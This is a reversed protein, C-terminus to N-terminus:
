CGSGIIIDTRDGAFLRM